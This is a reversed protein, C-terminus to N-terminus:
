STLEIYPHLTLLVEAIWRPNGTVPDPISRPGTQDSVDTVVGLGDDDVQPMDWLAAVATRCITEAEVDGSVGSRDESWAAIEMLPHDLWHHTSTPGGIRRVTLFPWTIRDYPTAVVRGTITDGASPNDAFLAEVDDHQMLYAVVIQTASPLVATTM